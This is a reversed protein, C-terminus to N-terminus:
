RIRLFVIYNGLAVKGVKWGVSLWYNSHSHGGNAWWARYRYASQPLPRNIIEEIEKFTLKASDRNIRQLYASLKEYGENCACFVTKNGSYKNKATNVEMGIQNSASVNSRVNKGSQSNWPPHFKEILEKEVKYREKTELFYLKITRGQKIENLIFNNVKCNTSQGGKFCNRPAINGYGINFRKSLDVCEGVYVLQDDSYICYVGEKGAWCNPIKFKCFPGKGYEHLEVNQKKTYLEQPSYEIINGNNDTKPTINCVYKFEYQDIKLM